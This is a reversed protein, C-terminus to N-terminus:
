HIVVTFITNKGGPIWPKAHLFTSIMLLFLIITAFYFMVYLYHDSISVHVLLLHIFVHIFLYIFLLDIVYVDRQFLIYITTEFLLSKWNSISLGTECIGSCMQDMDWLAGNLVYIYIQVNRNQISCQSFISCSGEPIQSNPWNLMLPVDVPCKRM